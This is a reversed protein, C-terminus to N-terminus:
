RIVAWADEQTVPMDDMDMGDGEEEYEQVDDAEDQQQQNDDEEEDYDMSDFPTSHILSSNLFLRPLIHFVKEIPEAM